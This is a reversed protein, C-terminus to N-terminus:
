KRKQLAAAPLYSRFLQEDEVSRFASRPLVIASMHSINLVYHDHVVRVRLFLKWPLFGTAGDSTAYRYGTEDFEVQYSAFLISNDRRRYARALSVQLNALVAVVVVSMVCFTLLGLQVSGIFGVLSTFVLLLLMWYAYTPRYVVAMVRALPMLEHSYHSLQVSPM